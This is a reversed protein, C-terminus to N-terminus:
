KDIGDPSEIEVLVLSWFELHPIEIEIFSGNSHWSALELGPDDSDPSAFYVQHIREQLSVRMRFDHLVVPASHSETWAQEELGQMNILNMVIGRNALRPMCWIGDPLSAVLNPLDDVWPGILEEYRVAFSAYRRLAQKLKAPMAQYKPFYADALLRENEGVEIRMAGSALILADLVRINSPRDAPLYIAIVVPKNGSLPRAESIVRLVDRYKPTDPWLEIYLFDLPTAALQAIPWNKVANFTVATDPAQVKVAMVFSTFAAPLDVPTGTSMFGSRPEGYQDVQLGDFPLRTLAQKCQDLLHLAWPNGPSPDMLGLFDEFLYPKGNEDYLAWCPHTRAFEKSAAYVALYAMAAMGRQHAAGILEQVTKLSSPRGLPDSYGPQLAVLQEHRYQWDYFQLGNIHYKLLADLLRDINERGPRFDCLFGYRPFKTWKELVDFATRFSSSSEGRSQLYAAAGYGRPATKEPKWDFSIKHRGPTVSFPIALEAVLEALHTIALHIVGKGAKDSQVNFILRINEGPVFSGKAPYFDLLKM